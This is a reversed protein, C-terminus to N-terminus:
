QMVSSQSSTWMTISCGIPMRGYVLVGNEALKLSRGIAKGVLGQFTSLCSRSASKTGELTMQMRWMVACVEMMLLDQIQVAPLLREDMSIRTLTPHTMGLGKNIVKTRIM